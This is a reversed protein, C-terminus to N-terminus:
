IEPYVIKVTQGSKAAEVTACCATVTRLGEQSSIPTPKDGRIADIFDAVEDNMNHSPTKVIPILKAEKYGTGLNNTEYLTIEASDTAFSLTGTTGFFTSRSVHKRKAGISCFVKGLVNNPFKYIAITSDDVPWDTLIKHNSFAHVERPDGAIWRLQDVAHCGGGIMGEREPSVRWDQYGRATAYCHAYETEVYVLEGIRGEDILKKAKRVINNYRAVQGVMLRKGTEKEVKCMSVCEEVTLAMPKELLVHKGGRLFAETIERHSNDSTTVIAVDVNPDNVLERYDAVTHLPKFQQAMKEMRDDTANDCIAYLVCGEKANVANMHRKSIIGCGIVAINLTKEM